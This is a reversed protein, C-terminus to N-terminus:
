KETFKSSQVIKVLTDRLKTDHDLTFNSKEYGDMTDEVFSFYIVNDGFWVYFEIVGGDNHESKDNCVVQKNESDMVKIPCSFKKLDEEYTNMGSADTVMGDLVLEVDKGDLYEYEPGNISTGAFSCQDDDDGCPDIIFGDNDPVKFTWKGVTVTVWGEYLVEDDGQYPFVNDDQLSGDDDDKTDGDDDPIIDEDSITDDLIDSDNNGSGSDGCSIFVVMTLILFVNLILKM